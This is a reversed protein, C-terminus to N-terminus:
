ERGQLRALCDAGRLMWHLKEWGRWLTIWGPEGDGKRGLFGGLGALERYFRRVSWPETAATNRKPKRVM